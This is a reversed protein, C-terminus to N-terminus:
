QPKFQIVTRTPVAVATNDVKVPAYRWQKVADVANREFIGAPDAILVRVDRTVGKVDVTYTITVSGSVNRALAGPPYDPPVYHTLKLQAPAAAPHEVASKQAASAAAAAAAEAAQRASAAEAEEQAAKAAAALAATHERAKRQAEQERASQAADDALRKLRAQEERRALEAHAKAAQLRSELAGSRPDQPVASKLSALTAGASDFQSQRLNEEFRSVLVAAVRALGDRAEASGTDAAQASRYYLLASDEAPETYRREAMATRAKELLEDVRGQALPVQVAPASLQAKPAPSAHEPSRRMLWPAAALVLIAIGVGVAWRYERPLNLRSLSVAAAAAPPPAASIDALAVSLPPPANFQAVADGLAGAFALATRSPDLPIPLVAVIKSARFAHRVSEEDASNAFLLIAVDAARAYARGVSDRLDTIDRTDIALVQARRASGMHELAMAVSEVPHVAAQTGVVAGLELLFDDQTTIAVIEAAAQASPPAGGISPAAPEADPEFPRTPQAAPSTL